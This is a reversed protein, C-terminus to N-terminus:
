GKAIMGGELRDMERKIKKAIRGAARGAQRTGATPGQLIERQKEQWKRIKENTYYAIYERGCLPCTFGVKEIDDRVRATGLSLLTFEEGCGKDCTLKVTKM